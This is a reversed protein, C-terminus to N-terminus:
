FFYMKMEFHLELTKKQHKCRRNAVDSKHSLIEFKGGWPIHNRSKEERVKYKSCIRDIFRIIDASFPLIQTCKEALSPIINTFFDIFLAVFFCTRACSMEISKIADFSDNSNVWNTFLALVCYLFLVCMYARGGEAACVYM